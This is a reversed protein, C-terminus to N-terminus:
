QKPPKVTDWYLGGAEFSDSSKSPEWNLDGRGEFKSAGNFQAANSKREKAETDTEHVTAILKPVDVVLNFKKCNGNMCRLTKDVNEAYM